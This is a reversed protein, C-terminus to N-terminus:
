TPQVFIVGYELMFTYIRSCHAVSPTSRMLHSVGGVSVTYAHHTAFECSETEPWFFFFFSLSRFYFSTACITFFAPALADHTVTARNASSLISYRKDHVLNMWEKANWAQQFHFLQLNIIIDNPWDFRSNIHHAIETTVGFTRDVVVGCSHFM